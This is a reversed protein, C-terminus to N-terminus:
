LNALIKECWKLKVHLITDLHDYTLHLYKQDPRGTHDIKVHKIMKALDEIKQQVKNRYNEIMKKLNKGKFHQGLSLKVLFDERYFLVELNDQEMWLLLEKTGKNTISFIKKNRKGSSEDVTSTVLNQTELKKLVPYIQANSEVGYFSSGRAMIQKLQYGSYPSKGLLGLIIYDSKNLSSM